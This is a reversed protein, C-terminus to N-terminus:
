LIVLKACAKARMNPLRIEMIGCLHSPSFHGSHATQTASINHPLLNNLAMLIDGYISGRGLTCLTM